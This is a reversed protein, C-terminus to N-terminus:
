LSCSYHVEGGCLGRAGPSLWGIHRPPVAREHPLRGTVELPWPGAWGSGEGRGPQYRADPTGLAWSPRPTPDRGMRGGGLALPPHPPGRPVAVPLTLLFLFIDTQGNTVTETVLVQGSPRLGAGGLTWWGNHSRGALGGVGGSRPSGWGQGLGWAEGVPGQGFGMSARSLQTAAAETPAASPEGKKGLRNKAPPSESCHQTLRTAPQAAPPPSPPKCPVLAGTPQDCPRELLTDGPWRALRPPESTLM